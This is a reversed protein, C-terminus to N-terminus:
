DPWSGGLAQFLAATDALRAARAQILAASAQQHAQEASCLALANVGGAALQKRTLELTKRASAEADAAAALADADAALAYLADAVNQFAALAVGRYQAAAQDLAAEASKQKHKLAGFDFIPATASGAVAWFVNHDALLRAFKESSGGYSADISFQPLRNAVAIGVQASAAHVQAEAARVDPRRAIIQSPTARPLTAPLTLTALDLRAINAEDPTQGLLAALADRTQELQKRLPPLAMRAAALASEQTAIDLGSAYGARAQVRLLQLAQESAAIAASAADIQARLSAEQVATAVVNAALTLYVADLRDRQAQAQAALSETTRRGLGFVDPAFGVSLQATHLTYQPAGSTLAPSLTGVADQQRAASYGLQASPLLASRQAALDQRAARLAAAAAEVDPNHRFAQEVLANLQPSGFATWWERAISAAPDFHQAAGQPGPAAATAALTERTLQAAPPPAPWQYDPGATCGALAILAVLACAPRNM